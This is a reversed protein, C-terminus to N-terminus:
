TTTGPPKTGAPAPRTHDHSDRNRPPHHITILETAPQRRVRQGISGAIRMPRSKALKTKEGARGDTSGDSRWVKRNADHCQSRYLEHFLIRRFRFSHKVAHRVRGGSRWSQDELNGAGPNRLEIVHEAPQEPSVVDDELDGIRRRGLREVTGGGRDLFVVILAEADGQGILGRLDAADVDDVGAGAA